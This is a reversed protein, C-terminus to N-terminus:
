EVDVQVPQSSVPTIHSEVTDFYGTRELWAKGQQVKKDNLWAGERPPM